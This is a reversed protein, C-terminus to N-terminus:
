DEFDRIYRDESSRRYPHFHFCPEAGLRAALEATVGQNVFLRYPVGLRKLEGVLGLDLNYHHGIASQLGPDLLVVNM